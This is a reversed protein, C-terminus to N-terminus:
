NEIHHEITHTSRIVADFAYAFSSGTTAIWGGFVEKFNSIWTVNGEFWHCNPNQYCRYAAHVGACIGASGIAISLVGAIAAIISCTRGILSITSWLNKRNIFRKQQKFIRESKIAELKELLRKNEKELERRKTKEFNLKDQAKKEQEAFLEAILRATEVSPAAYSLRFLPCLAVAAALVLSFLKRLTISM